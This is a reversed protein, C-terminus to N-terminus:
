PWVRCFIAFIAFNHCFPLIHCFTALFQCFPLVLSFLRGSMAARLEAESFPQQLAEADAAVAFSREVTDTSDVTAMGVQKGVGMDIACDM